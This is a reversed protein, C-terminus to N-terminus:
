LYSYLVASRRWGDYLVQHVYLKISENSSGCIYTVVCAAIYCQHISRRVLLVRDGPDLLALAVMAFAQNGGATVM